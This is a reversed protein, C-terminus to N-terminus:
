HSLKDNGQSVVVNPMAKLNKALATTADVLQVEVVQKEMSPAAFVFQKTAGKKIVVSVVKDKIKNLDSTSLSGKSVKGGLRKVALAANATQKVAVAYGYKDLYAGGVGPIKVLRDALDMQEDAIAIRKEIQAQTLSPYARKTAEKIGGFDIGTSGKPPSSADDGSGIGTTGTPTSSAKDSSSLVGFGGVAAASVVVLSALVALYKRKIDM